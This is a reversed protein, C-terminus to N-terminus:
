SARRRRQTWAFVCTGALGACVSAVVVATKATMLDGGDPFALSAIFLSMTFGIGGLIGAGLFHGMTVHAPMAVIGLRILSYVAMFIGFPKGILLGAIIGLGIPSFVTGVSEANLMIGANGLAFVPMVLYASWPSLRHELRHLLNVTGGNGAPIAFGLLVGAITPHIGGQLFAYWLFVGGALYVWVSQINQRCAWFLLLIVMVGGLLMAMHLESTYFLAIVIIGGLDDVIALVTLFVAISRPASKAAFALIGLSFAIDTAMPVGWGAMSPQGANFTIYLLAPVVMGGIAAAVPLITASPSKLEGFLFERKIEMGIVFFFLAMLGDNIWHLFSMTLRWQGAGITIERHLIHEYIDAWGSNALIMAIVACLLLIIGSSSEQRFFYQFATTIQNIQRHIYQRTRKKM